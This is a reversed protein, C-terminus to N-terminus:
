FYVIYILYINMNGASKSTAMRLSEGGGGGAPPHPRGANVPM